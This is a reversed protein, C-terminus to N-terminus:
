EDWKDDYYSVIKWGNPYARLNLILPEALTRHLYNDM